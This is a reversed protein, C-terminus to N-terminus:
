ADRGNTARLEYRKREVIQQLDDLLDVNHETVAEVLYSLPLAPNSATKLLARIARAATARQIEERTFRAKYLFARGVLVRILVQKRFLRDLTTMATTYALTLNAHQLADHVTGEGRAWLADLLRRELPGLEDLTPATSPFTPEM